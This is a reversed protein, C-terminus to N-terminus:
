AARFALLFDWENAEFAMASAWFMGGDKWDDRKRETSILLMGINGGCLCIYVVGDLGLVLLIGEWFVEWWM